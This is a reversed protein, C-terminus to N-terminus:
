GAEMRSGQCPRLRSGHSQRSLASAQKWAVAKVLSFGAEMRSGQCPRLRSGHSQRSLAEAQKWAVAKVLCFGGRGTIYVTM